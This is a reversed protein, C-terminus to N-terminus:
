REESGICCGNGDGGCWGCRVPSGVEGGRAAWPAIQGNAQPETVDSLVLSQHVGSCADPASDRSAAVPASGAHRERKRQRYRRAREADTMPERVGAPRASGHNLWYVTSLGRRLEPPRDRRVWGHWELVNLANATHRRSLGSWGALETLSRPQHRAPIMGTAWDARSLLADFVVVAYPPLRAAKVARRLEEARNV